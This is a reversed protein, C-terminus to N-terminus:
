LTAKWHGGKAPGIRQLVGEAKLKKIQWEVGKASLGLRNAMEKTSIAPNEAILRLIEERTKERTKGAGKELHDQGFVFVTWLGTEESKFEPAPTEELSCAEFIREIGRGWAEIKGARFFAHAVDPNFPISSHKSLLNEVSWNQPPQGPNWIMLKDHYVSIQLPVGRSYDKHIVANLLAERLAAEPVPYTEIRQLGEYSILAKMYKAHLIEMTQDVQTFLDGFVEDQYRLDTNSEFFGIKIQAGTFFREPEPHFLLVAARASGWLLLAACVAKTCENM